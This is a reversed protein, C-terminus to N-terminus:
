AVFNTQSFIDPPKLAGPCRWQDAGLTAPVTKKKKSIECLAVVFLDGNSIAANQIPTM